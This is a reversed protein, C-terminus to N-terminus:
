DKKEESIEPLQVDQGGTLATIYDEYEKDNLKTIKSKKKM